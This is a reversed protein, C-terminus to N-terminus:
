CRPPSVPQLSDSNAGRARGGADTGLVQGLCQVWDVGRRESVRLEPM